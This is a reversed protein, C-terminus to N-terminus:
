DLTLRGLKGDRVDRLFINAARLDDLRAGSALYRRTEAMHMMGQQAEALGACYEELREPYLRQMTRVGFDAIEEVNYTSAPVLNLFALRNHTEASMATPPLIGPTDLLELQPDVRIWQTGRTVGPMDGVKTRKQGIFWNILSSKGVNPIGVVCARMPRPLIGKRELAQRKQTTISLASSIFKGKFERSKLSLILSRHFDDPDDSEFDGLTLAKLREADALDLKSYITLRPKNGFIQKSAPHRTSEPLRGDLVEIILDVWKSIETLRQFPTSPERRPARKVAPKGAASFKAFANAKGGAGHVQRKNDKGGM